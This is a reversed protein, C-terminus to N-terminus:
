KHEHMIFSLNADPYNKKIYLWLISAACIGDVDCDNVILIKNNQRLHKLLMDSAAQINMLLFPDNECAATPYMFNEVDKVGRDQLIEVLAQQSDTTFNKKIKYKM